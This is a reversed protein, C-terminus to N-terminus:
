TGRRSMKLCPRRSAKVSAASAEQFFLSSTTTQAQPRSRMLFWRLFLVKLYKVLIFTDLECCEVTLMGEIYARVVSLEKSTIVSRYVPCLFSAVWYIPLFEPDSPCLLFAFYHELQGKM